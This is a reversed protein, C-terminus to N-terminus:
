SGFRVYSKKRSLDNVSRKNRPESGIVFVSFARETQAAVDKVSAGERLKRVAEAKFTQSYRTVM